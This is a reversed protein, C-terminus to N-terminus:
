NFGRYAEKRHRVRFVTVKRAEEDIHYLIRYDGSRVRFANEEGRLMASDHSRPQEELGIIKRLVQRRIKPPLGAIEKEARRKIELHYSM